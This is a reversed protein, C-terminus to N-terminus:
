GANLIGEKKHEKKKILAAAILLILLEFVIIQWQKLGFVKSIRESYVVRSVSLCKTLISLIFFTRRGIGVLGAGICVIEDPLVPIIFLVGTIIIANSEAMHIYKQMKESHVYKKMFRSSCRKSVGSMINMGAVTAAIGILFAQTAGLEVAGYLYTVVEPLPLCIPQLLCVTAYLLYVM